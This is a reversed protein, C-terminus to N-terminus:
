HRVSVLIGVVYSPFLGFCGRLINDNNMVAVIDNVFWLWKTNRIKFTDYYIGQGVIEIFDECLGGINTYPQFSVSDFHLFDM